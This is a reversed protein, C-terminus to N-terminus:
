CNLEINGTTPDNDLFVPVCGSQVIPAVTTPFGAACTIEDGHLLRREKEVLPSTLAHLAILNASSGSNVLLSKRVGLFKALEREM